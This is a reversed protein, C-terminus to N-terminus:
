VCLRLCITFWLVTDHMRHSCAPRSRILLPFVFPSKGRLRVQLLGRAAAPHHRPHHRPLDGHRGVDERDIEKIEAASRTPPPSFIASGLDRAQSCTLQLQAQTLAILQARGAAPKYLRPPWRGPQRCTAQTPWSALPGPRTDSGFTGRGRAGLQGAAVALASLDM